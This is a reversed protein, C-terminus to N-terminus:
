IGPHCILYNRLGDVDGDDLLDVARRFGADQIREHHPRNLRVHSPDEVHARLRAWSPFGYERAVALYADALTFTASVIMDETATRFRPHFERIRQCAALRGARRDNLLASGFSSPARPSIIAVAPAILPCRGERLPRNNPM